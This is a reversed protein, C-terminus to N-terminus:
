LPEADPNPERIRRRLESLLVDTPVASIDTAVPRGDDTYGALSRAAATRVRDVPIGFGRAIGEMTAEDPMQGLNDRTDHLIKWILQRRM